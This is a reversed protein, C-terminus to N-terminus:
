YSLKRLIGISVPIQDVLDRALIAAPDRDESALDGCNGHVWVGLQAAELPKVGQALFGTILGALIDGSGARALSPNACTSIYAKGNQSAIITLAGKLIVIQKWEKAFHVALELRKEQIEQVSLGTLAAMEGPHPTLISGAPLLKWWEPLEALIRLADADVVMPPLGPNSKEEPKETETQVFGIVGATGKKGPIALLRNLFHRTTEETELGPGVLLATSKGLNKHVVDAASEAIVGSDHPLLLWTVEPIHGAIATHIMGPVAVRVLGAGSRYAAEAALIVAGTYNISGAIILATGFTGKHADLPRHPLLNSIRAPTIVEHLKSEFSPLIKEVGISVNVFNGCYEFAPFTLLGTKVAAMSFTYDCHRTEPSVAGTVCDVGSPCDVALTVLGEEFKGVTKLTSKVTEDLPLRAGIGLIGDLIFQVKSCLKRLVALKSDETQNYVTGGSEQYATLLPDVNPREKVIYAHTVWGKKQLEQLAILADGGNNGSGILGLISKGEEDEFEMSFRTNIFEAIGSGALEMMTEYTLGLENAKKEIERMQDVTIVFMIKEGDSQV